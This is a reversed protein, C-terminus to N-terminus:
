EAMKSLPSGVWATGAPLTEGKMVLSLAGLRVGDNIRTDYLVISQTGIECDAGISLHSSKMIRDEFLHTQLICDKNLVSRDGIEVLDFELLGTTGMYVRRGIRAGLLRLYWPLLPTGQLAELGVPTAFFEYLANVFELRWIFVSWLPREFPLYRGMAIWKVLAVALAAATACAALVAPLLLLTVGAGARVWLNLAAEIVSVTVIIFGAGPLTVRLIECCARGWQVKRSPRFTCHESFGPRPQRRPLLIPPSGLWSAGGRAPQEEASPAMTLVGVLSDDGLATGAPIVASNGVFTRRGISTPALTLWGAEVRATGLSVEDAITADDKIELLDPTTTSATSFEVFRGLRAGLACYWPKLYLTSHLPGAVEVSLALLQEVIWNRLYFWGHVPYRGARVRGTLLWKLLVVQTSLCLIFSAGALPAALYFVAQAMHFRTLIAIGPVFATLEILPFGLVIATYLAIIVARYVPSRAPPRDPKAQPHSVRRSPSGAWTEAAPIRAGSPLLSLDELRAGDDMVTHPCLVSRTGVVCERGVSVPGIVLEGGEVAYGLLSAGEDVSAGSGISILDFAALSDTALHVHEEIRVGLLRYVWPLLPTGGLRTLPVNGVLSQVFWWRLYYSGWLPYRAPRIRGLLIWKASVALLVLIPFVAVGSAAAWAAAEWSSHHVAMLFFVLYPTVSQIGQFGFVFYLSFSQVMGAFFHRVRQRWEHSDRLPLPATQAQPPAASDVISALGSITPHKYVDLVTLSAFRSSKRLESVMQAALLSHGGLHRFFDDDLSVSLPSFLGNWLEMLQRETESPLREPGDQPRPLRQRPEPLSARDLKGSLFRPLTNVTEIIAPVMWAPLRSHLHADLYEENLAGGERPVVYGTLQPISRPNQRVTCVAALVGEAELLVSEIESLEIRLGRLKVQGDARGLFHLNAEDDTRGIDGTRYIRAHTNGAAAFPDPVFRSRTEAPLGVYGRAVGAGGICIEGSQGQQVPRLDGDLIYIYYGPLPRGITVPKHPSLDTHTAIVTTETPGYTNVMRRGARSWRAVLQDSCTEGGLILLRLSPVDEELMSLLTPVCSLVTVGHETLRRSLDPGARAMVPTAAILAAGAHFALWIEEISLDFALSAGQYVRDEPRVAFLHGEARVLHCANRHEVMVGKPRGTSGSTYIVYCLDRPEPHSQTRALGEASEAAIAGADADVLVVAGRFGLHVPALDASTVLIRAGSDALIYAVRDPPYAPDIPVYAAGSKLIALLTVYAEISRPLLMAVASERQAGCRHLHRALRNARAEMEGYTIESPGFVVAVAEPRAAAQSEFIEHLVLASTTAGQHSVVEQPTM